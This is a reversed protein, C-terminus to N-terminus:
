DYDSQSYPSKSNHNLTVAKLFKKATLFHQEINLKVNSKEAVM